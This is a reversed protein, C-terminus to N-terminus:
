DDRVTSLSLNGDVQQVLDNGCWELCAEAANKKWLIFVFSARRAHHSNVVDEWGTGLM